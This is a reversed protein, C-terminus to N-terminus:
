CLRSSKSFFAIGLLLRVLRAQTRRLLLLVHLILEGQRSRGYLADIRLMLSLEISLLMSSLLVLSTLLEGTCSRM